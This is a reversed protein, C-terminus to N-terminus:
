FHCVIRRDKLTRASGDVRIVFQLPEDAPLSVSSQAGELYRYESTSGARTSKEKIQELPTLAGTSPNVRFALDSVPPLELASDGAAALTAAFSVFFGLCSARCGRM